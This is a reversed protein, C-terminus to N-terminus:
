SSDLERFVKLKNAQSLKKPHLNAITCWVKADWSWLYWFAQKHQDKALNEVEWTQYLDNIHQKCFLFVFYFSENKFWSYLSNFWEFQNMDIQTTWRWDFTNAPVFMNQNNNIVKWSKSLYIKKFYIDSVVYFNISKTFCISNWKRFCTWFILLSLPVLNM